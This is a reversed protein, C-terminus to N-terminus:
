IKEYFLICEGLIKGAYYCRYGNNWLEPLPSETGVSYYDGNDSDKNSTVIGFKAIIAFWFLKYFGIRKFYHKM